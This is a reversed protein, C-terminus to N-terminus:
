KPSGSADCTLLTDGSCSTEGPTCVAALCLGNSCVSGAACHAAELCALCYGSVSCHPTDSLCDSDDDCREGLPTGRSESAPQTGSTPAGPLGGDLGGAGGGGWGAGASGFAAEQPTEEADGDACAPVVLLTFAAISAIHLARNM